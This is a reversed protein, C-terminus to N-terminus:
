VDFIQRTLQELEAHLFGIKLLLDTVHQRWLRLDGSEVALKWVM